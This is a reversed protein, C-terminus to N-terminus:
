KKELLKCALVGCALTLFSCIWIPVVIEYPKEGGSRLALITSPILQLSATNLVAFMCMANSATRRHGNLKDLAAMARLGFPTAANGMGLLNATMNSLIATAAESSAPVDPFLLRLVPRLLRGLLKLAGAAAAIEFFGTWFCLVGALSLVTTVADAAGQMCADMVAAAKGTLLSTVLALAMIAPWIKNLM